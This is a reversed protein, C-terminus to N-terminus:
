SSYGVLPKLKGALLARARHLRSRVTGAPCGAISAVEQYSLEQMDCLILVERYVPPLTAMVERLRNALQEQELETALCGGAAVEAPEEDDLSLHRRRLRMQRLVQNRAVAFLWALVTGRAADLRGAERLLALFTEQVVEAAVDEDGGLHLAYRFISAQRRRYVALFAAEDGRAVAPLLVEDSSEAEEGSYKPFWRHWM